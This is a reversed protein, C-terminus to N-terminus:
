LDRRELAATALVLLAAAGVLAAGGAQLGHAIPRTADTLSALGAYAAGPAVAPADAVLLAAAALASAALLSVTAAVLPPMLTGALLGVVVLALTSCGVAAIAVGFALPEITRAVPGLAAWALLAAPALAILVSAGGALLWGGLLARRPVARAVLWAARGRRREAAFTWALLTATLVGAAGLSLSLRSLGTQVDTPILAVLAGGLVFAALMVVLRYSIWLERVALWAVSVTVSV